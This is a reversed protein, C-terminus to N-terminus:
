IGVHLQRFCAFTCIYSSSKVYLLIYRRHTRKEKNTDPKAKVFCSEIYERCVYVCSHTYRELSRGCTRPFKVNLNWENYKQLFYKRTKRLKQHGAKDCLWVCKFNIATLDNKLRRFLLGYIRHWRIIVTFHTARM